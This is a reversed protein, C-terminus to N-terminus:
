EAVLTPPAKRLGLELSIGRLLIYAILSLELFFILPRDGLSTELIIALTLILPVPERDERLVILCAVVVMTLDPYVGYPSVLVSGILASALPPAPSKNRFTLATM